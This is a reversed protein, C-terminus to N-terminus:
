TLFNKIIIRGPTERWLSTMEKTGRDQLEMKLQHKPDSEIFHMDAAQRALEDAM